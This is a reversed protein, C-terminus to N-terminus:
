IWVIVPPADSQAYHCYECRCKARERVIAYLTKPIPMAKLPSPPTSIASSTTSNASSRRDTTSMAELELTENPTLLDLKKRDLLEQLRHGVTPRLGDSLNDTFKFLTLNNIHQIKLGTPLLKSPKLLTTM